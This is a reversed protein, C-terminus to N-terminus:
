EAGDGSEAEAQNMEISLEQAQAQADSNLQEITPAHTGDSTLATETLMAEVTANVESDTAGLARGNGRIVELMQEAVGKPNENAKAALADVLQERLDANEAKLRGIENDMEAAKLFLEGYAKQERTLEGGDFAENFIEGTEPHQVGHPMHVIRGDDLRVKHGDSDVDLVQLIKAM